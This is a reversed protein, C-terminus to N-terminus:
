VGLVYLWQISEGGELVNKIHGQHMSYWGPIHSYMQYPDKGILEIPKDMGLAFFDIEIAVGVNPIDRFRKIDSRKMM